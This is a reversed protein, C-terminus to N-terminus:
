AAADGAGHDAHRDPDDAQALERLIREPDGQGDDHEHHHHHQRRAVPEPGGAGAGLHHGAERRTQQVRADPGGPGGTTTVRWAPAIGWCVNRAVVTANKAQQLMTATGSIMADPTTVAEVHRVVSTAMGATKAPVAMPLRM